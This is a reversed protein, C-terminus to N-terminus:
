IQALMDKKKNGFFFFSIYYKNKHLSIVLAILIRREWQILCVLTKKLQKEMEM